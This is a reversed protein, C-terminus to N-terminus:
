LTGPQVAHWIASMPNVVYGVNPGSQEIVKTFPMRLKEQAWKMGPHIYDEHSFVAIFPRGHIDAAHARLSYVGDMEGAVIVDSERLVALLEQETSVHAARRALAMELVGLSRTGTLKPDIETPFGAIVPLAAAYIETSPASGPNLVIGAGQQVGSALRAGPLVLQHPAQEAYAGVRDPSTFMAVLPPGGAKQLTIPQPAAGPQRFDVVSPLIVPWTALVRLMQEFALEGRMGAAIASELGTEPRRQGRPTTILDDAM